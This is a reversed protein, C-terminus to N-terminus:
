VERRACLVESLQLGDKQSLWTHTGRHRLGNERGDWFKRLSCAPGRSKGPVLEGSSHGDKKRKELDGIVYGGIYGPFLKECTFVANTTKQSDFSYVVLM